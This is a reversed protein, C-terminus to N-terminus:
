MDAQSIGFNQRPQNTLSKWKTDLVITSNDERTIVIDPRLAFQKPHNFLYHGKDQTSVEWPQNALVRKLQQAVYSEFVKEM